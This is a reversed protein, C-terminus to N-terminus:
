SKKRRNLEDEMKAIYPDIGELGPEVTKEAASTGPVPKRNRYVLYLIYVGIAFFLPPLVYVLWNFGRLPPEALVRDGYQNVFYEKIQKEDWGLALKERILDRWQACAQTPCVDLPINECVPCFLQKAVANVDDDSPTPQQARANEIFIGAAAVAVLILSPVIRLTLRRISFRM